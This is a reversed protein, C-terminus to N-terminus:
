LETTYIEGNRFKSWVTEFWLDSQPIPRREVWANQVTDGVPTTSLVKQRFISNEAAMRWRQELRDHVAAGAPDVVMASGRSGLGSQVAFHVAEIYVAHAYCLQRTRM